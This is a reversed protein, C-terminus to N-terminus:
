RGRYSTMTLSITKALINGMFDISIDTNVTYPTHTDAYISAKRGWPSGFILEYQNNICMTAIDVYHFVGSLQISLM